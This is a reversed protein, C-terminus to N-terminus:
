KKKLLVFTGIPCIDQALSKVPMLRL